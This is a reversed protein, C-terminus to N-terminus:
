KATKTTSCYKPLCLNYFVFFLTEQHLISIYKECIILNSLNFYETQFMQENSFLVFLCKM